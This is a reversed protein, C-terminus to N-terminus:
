LEIRALMNGMRMLAADVSARVNDLCAALPVPESELKGIGGSDKNVIEAMSLIPSLRDEVKLQTEMLVAVAKELRQLREQVQTM